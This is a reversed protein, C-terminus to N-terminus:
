AQSVGIRGIVELLLVAAPVRRVEVELQGILGNQLPIDSDQSIQFRALTLENVTESGIRSLKTAVLGYSAWPFSDLRLRGVQGLRLQGLARADFYAEVEYEADPVLTLLWDASEVVAGTGIKAFGGITGSVPATIKTRQLATRLRQLEGRLAAVEAQRDAVSQAITALAVQQEEEFLGAQARQLDLRARFGSVRSRSEVVAAQRRELDATSLAGDAGLQRAREWDAEALALQNHAVALEAQLRRKDAEVSEASRVLVAQRSSQQRELANIERVAAALSAQKQEVQAPLAGGDLELLLQGAAVRDGIDILVRKVPLAAPAHIPM